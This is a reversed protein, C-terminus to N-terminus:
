KNGKNLRTQKYKGYKRSTQGYVVQYKDTNSRINKWIEGYKAQQIQGIELECKELYSRVKRWIEGYKVKFIRGIEVEYKDM